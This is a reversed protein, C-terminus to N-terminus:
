RHGYTLGHNMVCLSSTNGLTNTISDMSFLHRVENKFEICEEIMHGKQNPHCECKKRLDVSAEQSSAREVPGLMHRSWYHKFILACLIVIRKQCEHPYAEPSIEKDGKALREEFSTKHSLAEEFSEENIEEEPSGPPFILWVSAKWAAKTYRDERRESPETQISKGKDM